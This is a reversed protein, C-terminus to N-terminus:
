SLSPNLELELTQILAQYRKSSDLTNPELDSYGFKGAINM